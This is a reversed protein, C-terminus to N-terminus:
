VNGLESFFTFSSRKIKSHYLATDAKQFLDEYTTADQPYIAVGISTTLSHDGNQFRVIPKLKECLWTIGSFDRIFVMFEDGGFRGLVDSARFNKKIVSALEKIAKDGEYHGYTDNYSKFNDIDLLVFAHNM